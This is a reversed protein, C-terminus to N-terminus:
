REAPIEGTLYCLAILQIPLSLGAHTRTRQTKKITTFTPFTGDCSTTNPTLPDLCYLEFRLWPGQPYLPSRRGTSARPSRSESGALEGHSFHAFPPPLRLPRGPM